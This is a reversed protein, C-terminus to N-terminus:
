QVKGGKKAEELMEKAAMAVADIFDYGTDANIVITVLAESIYVGILDCRGGAFFHREGTEYGIFGFHCSDDGGYNRMASDIVEADKEVRKKKSMSM